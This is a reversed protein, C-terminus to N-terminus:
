SRRMVSDTCLLYKSGCVLGRAAYGRSALDDSRRLGCGRGVAACLGGAKVEISDLAGRSTDSDSVADGAFYATGSSALARHFFELYRPLTDRALDEGIQVQRGLVAMAQANTPSIVDAKPSPPV